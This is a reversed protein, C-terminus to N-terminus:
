GNKSLKNLKVLLDEVQDQKVMGLESLAQNLQDESLAKGHWNDQNQLFSIGKGKITRALIVKPQSLNKALYAKEIEAFNHGNEVLEVSWGFAKFRAQYVPLNWGISTEGDQELRNIDVIATLNDLKYYSALNCAEWISGEALEGDGLFVYTQNSNRSLKKDALAMGVGISLGQGLSGTAVEIEPLGPMPHGEIRSGFQRLTMLEEQKILGLEVLLAYLLPAAHGKSFILQDDEQWLGDGFRLCTMLEVASLSSTPHGSGAKTTSTLILYRLHKAIKTLKAINM